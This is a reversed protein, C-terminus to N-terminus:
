RSVTMRAAVGPSDGPLLRSGRCTALASPGYLLRVPLVTGAPIASDRCGADNNYYARMLIAASDAMQPTAGDMALLVPVSAGVDTAIYDLLRRIAARLDPADVRVSMLDIFREGHIRYLADHMHVSGGGPVDLVLSTDGLVELRTLFAMGMGSTTGPGSLGLGTEAAVAAFWASDRDASLLVIDGNAATIRSAVDGPAADAQARFALVEYEQPGGGGLRVACAGVALTALLPIMLRAARNM